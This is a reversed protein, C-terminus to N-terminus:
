VQHMSATRHVLEQNLVYQPNKDFHFFFSFKFIGVYMCVAQFYEAISFIIMKALLVM